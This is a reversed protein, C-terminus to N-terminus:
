PWLFSLCTSTYGRAAASLVSLGVWGPISGPTSGLVKEEHSGARPWSRHGWSISGPLAQLKQWRGSGLLLRCPPSRGQALSAQQDLEPVSM